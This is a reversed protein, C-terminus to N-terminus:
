LVQILEVEFNFLGPGIKQPEFTPMNFRVNYDLGDNPNTFTFVTLQGKKSDFFNKVADKEATTRYRYTLKWRRRSQSRTARRQEVGNEYETILTDYEIKEEIPFDYLFNFDAM